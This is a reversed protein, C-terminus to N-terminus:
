GGYLTHDRFYTAAVGTMALFLVWNAAYYEDFQKKADNFRRTSTAEDDPDSGCNLMKKVEKKLKHVAHTTLAAAELDGDDRHKDYETDLQSLRNSYYIPPRM